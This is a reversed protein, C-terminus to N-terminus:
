EDLLQKRFTALQLDGDLAQPELEGVDLSAGATGIRLHALQLGFHFTKSVLERRRPGFGAVQAVLVSLQAGPDLLGQLLESIGM